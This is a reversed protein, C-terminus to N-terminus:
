GAEGSWSAFFNSLDYAPMAKIYDNVFKDVNERNVKVGPILWSRHKAPLKKVDLKGEKAALAMTLGLM